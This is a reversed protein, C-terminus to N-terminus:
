RSHKVQDALRDAQAQRISPKKRRMSSLITSVASRRNRTYPIIAAVPKGRRTVIYSERLRHVANVVALTHNRLYTVNISLM